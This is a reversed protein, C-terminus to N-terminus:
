EGDLESVAIVRVDQKDARIYPNCPFIHCIFSMGAFACMCEGDPYVDEPFSSVLKYAKGLLHLCGRRALFEYSFKFPQGVSISACDDRSELVSVVFDKAM